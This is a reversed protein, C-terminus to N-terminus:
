DITAKLENDLWIPEATHRPITTTDPIELYSGNVVHGELYADNISPFEAGSAASYASDELMDTSTVLDYNDPNFSLSNVDISPLGAFAVIHTPPNVYVIFAKSNKDVGTVPIKGM